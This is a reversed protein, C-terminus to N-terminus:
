RDATFAAATAEPRNLYGLMCYEPRIQLEGQMGVDCLKGDDGMVPANRGIEVSWAHGIPNGPRLGPTSITM